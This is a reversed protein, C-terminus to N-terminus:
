FSESAFPLATEAIFSRESCPSMLLIWGIKSLMLLLIFMISVLTLFILVDSIFRMLVKSPEIWDVIKFDMWFSQFQIIKISFKSFSRNKSQNLGNIIKSDFFSWFNFLNQCKLDFIPRFWNSKTIAGCLLTKNDAWKKYNWNILFTYLICVNLLHKTKLCM